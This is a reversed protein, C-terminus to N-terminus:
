SRPPACKACLEAVADQLALSATDKNGRTRVNVSREGVERDGVVLLFPTKQVEGDRIKKSVSEPRLDTEARLGAAELGAKSRSPTPRM